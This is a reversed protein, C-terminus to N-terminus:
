KCRLVLSSQQEAVNTKPSNSLKVFSSFKCFFTWNKKEFQKMKLFTYCFPAMMESQKLQLFQTLHKQHRSHCLPFSVHIYTLLAKRSILVIWKWKQPLRSIKFGSADMGWHYKTEPWVSSSHCCERHWKWLNPRCRHAKDSFDQGRWVGLSM